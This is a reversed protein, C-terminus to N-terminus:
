ILKVIPIPKERGKVPVVGLSEYSLNEMNINLFVEESILLQSGFKKNLQEIRSALIVTNGTITYQKREATGVNGSVINGSHLGIGIKTKPIENSECKKKLTDLIEVAANVANQSDNDTSIPAGFTAMFGDGLFQNIIGHHKSIIDIMFGFVDNQYQIIENPEKGEAFPTFDRIDLFMICAFLKKSESEFSDSLLESAVEKSVHQGFLSLARKRDEIEFKSREKLLKNARQKQRLGYYVFGVLLLALISSGIFAWKLIESKRLKLDQITKQSTLKNIEAEKRENEFRAELEAIQETKNENLLSDSIESYLQHYEYAKRYDGIEVYTNSLGHYIDRQRELSAINIAIDLGSQLYKLAKDHKKQGSYIHGMNEYCMAIDQQYGLEKYIKEAKFYYELAEDFLGQESHIYGMSMSVHAIGKKNDLKAFVDMLELFIEMAQSYDKLQIYITGMNYLTVAMGFEDGLEKKIKLSQEHYQIAEKYNSQYYHILALNNYSYAIGQKNGVMQRIKLSELYKSIAEPYNGRYRALEGLSNLNNAIGLSDDIQISAELSKNFYEESDMYMSQEMYITGINHNSEVIGEGYEMNESLNLAQRAYFLSSDTNIFYYAESLNNLLNIKSTDTVQDLINLLSDINEAQIKSVGFVSIFNFVFLTFLIKLIRSIKHIPGNNINFMITAIQSTLPM